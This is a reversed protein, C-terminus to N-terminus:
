VLGFRRYQEREMEWYVARELLLRQEEDFFWPRTPDPAFRQFLDKSSRKQKARIIEHCKSLHKTREEELVLSEVLPTSRSKSFLRGLRDLFGPRQDEGLLLIRERAQALTVAMQIRELHDEDDWNKFLTRLPNLLYYKAKREFSSRGLSTHARHGVRSGPVLMCDYGLLNLRWGLDLDEYIMGYTEDFGGAELYLSRPIAMAGGCPCLVPIRPGSPDPLEGQEEFGYALHNTSVGRFLARKGEWDMLISGVAGQVSGELLPEVLRKLWDPEVWTDNNLFVLVEGESELIGAQIAHVFGGNEVCAVVRVWPHERKVWEVSGDTSGDDVVVVEHLPTEPSLHQLSELCPRLIEPNNYHPILVTIKAV